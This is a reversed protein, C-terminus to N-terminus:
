GEQKGGGSGARDPVVPGGSARRPPDAAAFGGEVRKKRRLSGWRRRGGRGRREGWRRSRVDGPQSALALSLLAGGHRDWGDRSSLAVGAAALFLQSAGNVCAGSTKEDLATVEFVVNGFCASTIFPGIIKLVDRHAENQIVFKPLCPHWLQQIYGVPLGPPAQIELEQLCCPCCCGDCRFPRVLHIVQQGVHNSIVMTFPRLSGLCNRVCFNNEETAFYVM